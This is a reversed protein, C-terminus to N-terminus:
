RVSQDVVIQNESNRGNFATCQVSEQLCVNIQVNEAHFKVDSHEDIRKTRKSFSSIRQAM